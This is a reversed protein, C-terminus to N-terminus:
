ADLDLQRRDLEPEARRQHSARAAEDRIFVQQLVHPPRIGALFRLEQADVDVVQAALELLIRRPRLPQQGLEADAVAQDRGLGSRGSQADTRRARAGRAATAKRARSAKSKRRRMPQVPCVGSPGLGARLIEPERESSSSDPGQRLAEGPTWSIGAKEDLRR